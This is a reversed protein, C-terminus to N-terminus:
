RVIRGDRSGAPLTGDSSTGHGVDARETGQAVVARRDGIRREHDRRRVVDDARGFALTQQGAVRGVDDTEVQWALVGTVLRVRAVAAGGLREGRPAGVPREVLVRMRGDIDVLLRVPDRAAVHRPGLAAEERPETELWEARAAADERVLARQGAWALIAVLQEPRGADVRAGDDPQVVVRGTDSCRDEVGQRRPAGVEVDDIVVPGLMAQPGHRCIAVIGRGHRREEGRSGGTREGDGVTVM